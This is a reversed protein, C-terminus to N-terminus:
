GLNATLYRAPGALWQRRALNSHLDALNQPAVLHGLMELERDVVSGKGPRPDFLGNLLFGAQIANVHNAGAFRSFLQRCFIGHATVLAQGLYFTDESRHLAEIQQNTGDAVAVFIAYRGVDEQTQQSIVDLPM